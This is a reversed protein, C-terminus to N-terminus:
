NESPSAEGPMAVTQYQSWLELLAAADDGLGAGDLAARLRDASGDPKAVLDLLRWLVDLQDSIQDPAVSVTRPGDGDAAAPDPEPGDPGGSRATLEKQIDFFRTRQDKTLRLAPLFTAPEADPLDVILAGYKTEIDTRLQDLSYNTM